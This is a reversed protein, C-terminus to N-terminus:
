LFIKPPKLQGMKLTIQKSFTRQEYKKAQTTKLGKNKYKEWLIKKQNNNIHRKAKNPNEPTPPHPIGGNGHSAAFSLFIHTAM